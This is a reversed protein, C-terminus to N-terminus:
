STQIVGTGGSTAAIKPALRRRDIAEKVGNLFLQQRRQPADAILDSTPSPLLGILHAKADISATLSVIGNVVHEPDGRAVPLAEVVERHTAWDLVNTEGGQRGILSEPEDRVRVM